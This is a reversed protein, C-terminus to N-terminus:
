VFEFFKFIFTWTRFKNCFKNEIFHFFIMGFIGITVLSGYTDKATKSINVLRVLLVTYIIVLLTSIIFGMEESIRKPNNFAFSVATKSVGAKEALDKITVKMKEIIIENKKLTFGNVLTINLM